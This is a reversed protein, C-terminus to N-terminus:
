GDPAEVVLEERVVGRQGIRQVGHDILSARLGVAHHSTLDFADDRRRAQGRLEDLAHLGEVFQLREHHGHYIARRALVRQRAPVARQLAPRQAARAARTNNRRVGRVSRHDVSPVHVQSGHLQERREDVLADERPVSRDHEAGLHDRAVHREERPVSGAGGSVDDLPVRAVRRVFSAVALHEIIQEFAHRQRAPRQPAHDFADRGVVLRLGLDLARM